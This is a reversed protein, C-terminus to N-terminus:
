SQSSEEAIVRVLVSAHQLEAVTAGFQATWECDNITRMAREIAEVEALAAAHVSRAEDTINPHDLDMLELAKRINKLGM